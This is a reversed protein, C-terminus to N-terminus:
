LCISMANDGKNAVNISDDLISPFKHGETPPTLNERQLAMFPRTPLELM